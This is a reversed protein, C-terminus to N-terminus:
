IIVEFGEFEVNFHNLIEVVSASFGCQPFMPSGKMYLVIDSRSIDDHIRQFVPNTM